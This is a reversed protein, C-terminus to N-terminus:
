PEFVVVDPYLQHMAGSPPYLWVSGYRDPDEVAEQLTDYEVPMKGHDEDIYTSRLSTNPFEKVLQIADKLSLQSSYESM